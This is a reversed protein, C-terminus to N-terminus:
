LRSCPVLSRVSAHRAALVLIPVCLSTDAGPLPATPNMEVGTPLHIGHSGVYGVRLSLTNVLQRQVELNWEYILPMQTYYQINQNKQSGSGANCTLPNLLAAVSVNPTIVGSETGNIGNFISKCGASTPVPQIALSFSSNSSENSFWSRDDLENDYVGGSARISTKGSGTPDWAFGVRPSFNAKPTIFAPGILNTAGPLGLNPM